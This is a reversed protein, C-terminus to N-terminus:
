RWTAAKLDLACTHEVQNHVLYSQVRDLYDPRNTGGLDWGPPLFSAMGNITPLGTWEALLMSDVNLSYFGDVEAPVLPPGPRTTTAYFARCNAPPAPISLLQRLEGPRDLGTNSGTDIQELVLLVCVAVLLPAPLRRSLSALYGTVALIVPAVLLIQLRCVVRVAKAGPVHDYVAHWLTATGLHLALMWVVLCSLSTLFLLTGRRRAGPLSLTFLILLIPPLGVKHEGQEPFDPRVAHNLAHDAAGFLFNDPGVNVIDLVGPLYQLTEAWPHGGTEASKPLYLALFPLAGAVFVLLALASPWLRAPSFGILPRCGAVLSGCSVLLVGVAILLLTFWAMYFATMLWLDLVVAAACGWLAASRSCTPLMVLHREIFLMLLPAFAVSLLQVHIAQGFSTCSLTFLAAGLAAFTRSVRYSIRSMLYFSAFGIAKVCIDVLESSAMMDLGALRFPTYLLGYFLYGDNYALSGSTPYFFRPTDWFERGQLVNFWHELLTTEILGDSRDGTLLLFGSEIQHRFFVTVALIGIVCVLIRGALMNTTSELRDSM